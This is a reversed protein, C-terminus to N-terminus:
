KEQLLQNLLQHVADGNWRANQLARARVKGKKDIVYGSPLQKADFPIKAGQPLYKKEIFYSIPFHYKRDAQLKEPLEPLENTVFYFDVKHGFQNYLKQLGLLDSISMPHWSAWFYVVKVKGQSQNFNFQQNNRDKLIWNEDIKYQQSPNLIEVQKSFLRQLIIKSEYGLPTVFFAGVFAFLLLNIVTRKKM